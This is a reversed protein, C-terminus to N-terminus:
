CPYLGVQQMHRIFSARKEEEVSHVSHIYAKLLAQITIVQLLHMCCFLGTNCAQNLFTVCSSARMNVLTWLHVQLREGITLANQVKTM